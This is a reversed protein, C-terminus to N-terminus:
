VIVLHKSREKRRTNTWFADMKEATLNEHFDYNVQSRRLGAAPASANSKKWRFCATRRHNGQARHGTEEQLSGPNRRRRAAPVRYQHLGARQIQRSAQHDAHLLLQDRQPSRTRDSGLRAALEAIVEDSLYGVEDQAYLLTPVLVSRKTPYHTLM